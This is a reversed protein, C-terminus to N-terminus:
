ASNGDVSTAIEEELCCLRIEVAMIVIKLSFSVKEDQFGTLFWPQAGTAKEHGLIILM